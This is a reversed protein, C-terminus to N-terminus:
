SYEIMVATGINTEMTVNFIAEDALSLKLDMYQCDNFPLLHDDSTYGLVQLPLLLNSGTVVEM